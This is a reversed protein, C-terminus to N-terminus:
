SRMATPAISGSLTHIRLQTGPKIFDLKISHEEAWEALAPLIFEPGNNIRLKKPYGRWAVSRELIRIVRPIPLSLDIEIALAECNLDDVLNFTRFRRGCILSDYM